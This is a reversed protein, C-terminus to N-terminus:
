KCSFQSTMEFESEHKKKVKQKPHGSFESTNWSVAARQCLLKAGEGKKLWMVGLPADSQEEKEKM